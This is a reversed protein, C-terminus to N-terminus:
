ERGAEQEKRTIPKPDRTYECGGGCCAHCVFNDPCAGYKRINKTCRECLFMPKGCKPCSMTQVPPTVIRQITNM